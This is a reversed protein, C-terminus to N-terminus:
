PPLNPNMGREHLISLANALARTLRKEGGFIGHPTRLTWRAHDRWGSEPRKREATWGNTLRYVSHLGLVSERRKGRALALVEPSDEHFRPPQDLSTSM